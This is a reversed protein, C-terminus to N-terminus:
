GWDVAGRSNGGVGLPSFLSGLGLFGSLLKLLEKLFGIRFGIPFSGEKLATSLEVGLSFM